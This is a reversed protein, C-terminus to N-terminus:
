TFASLPLSLRCLCYFDVFATFTSLPLLLTTFSCYFNIFASFTSLPLLLITFSCYFIVRAGPFWSSGSLGQANKETSTYTHTIYFMGYGTLFIGGLLKQGYSTVVSVSLYWSLHFHNRGPGQLKRFRLFRCTIYVIPFM